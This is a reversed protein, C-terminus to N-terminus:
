LVKSTHDHNTATAPSPPTSVSDSVLSSWDGRWENKVANAAGAGAAAAAAAAAAALEIAAARVPM